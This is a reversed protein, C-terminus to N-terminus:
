YKRERGPATQFCSPRNGHDIHWSVRDTGLFHRKPSELNYKLISISFLRHKGSHQFDLSIIDTRTELSRICYLQGPISQHRLKLKTASGKWQFHWKATSYLLVNSVILCFSICVQSFMLFCNYFTLEKNWTYKLTMSFLFELHKVVFRGDSCIVSSM